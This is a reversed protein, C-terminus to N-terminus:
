RSESVVANLAEMLQPLALSLPMKMTCGSARVHGGGGFLGALLNVDIQGRSRFSVRCLEPAVEKVFMATLVGSINMAQNVFGECDDAGVGEEAFDQQSLKMVAVTGSWSLSLSELARALLRTQTLTREYFLKKHITNVGFEYSLLAGAVDHTRQTTNHFAFQGTDNVISAYLNAAIESNIGVDLEAFLLWLMEGVSSSRPDIWAIDGYGNNSVHHDINIILGESRVAGMDTTLDARDLNACDLYIVADPDASLCRHPQALNKYGPLFDLRESGQTVYCVTKGMQELVMGLALMSGLADADPQVHTMLAFTRNERLAAAVENLL